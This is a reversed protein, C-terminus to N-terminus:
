GRGCCIEPASSDTFFLAGNLLQSGHGEQASPGPVSCSPQCSSRAHGVIM